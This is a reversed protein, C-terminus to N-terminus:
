LLDIPEVDVTVGGIEKRVQPWVERLLEQLAERSAARLLLHWRYRDKLRSLPCTSPGLVRVDFRKVVPKLLAAVAEIRSRAVAEELHGSVFRALSGFPPFGLEERGRIEEQYFGRFDHRSAAQISAHEPNFTQVVVEGPRDGRGARGSVQTLLQFAREAARFDPVNLAVDATVVGVLTVGPFDFGKTVMQTGVLIDIEGSHVQSVIRTHADKTATVDRDLRAVRAQPFLTRIMEEVRQTGIGFQRVRSGLCRECASPAKRLHGCHHCQLTGVRQRHLTLSVACSPCHPVHGCDRCLLFSSFGRRNLFLIVQEGRGLREGMAEELRRGFVTGPRLKTEERLDVIEVSPLPRQRVREPLELLACRGTQAAHFTELSPTASGLVLCGGSLRAYERAVERTHYRPSPSDQKYSGDHEEDLVILAPGKLPAYLASRPGVVVDAEGRRVREWEDFREGESLASHLIAVREGLRRRVAAAVQATLSIEPVLLLATRGAERAREIAHLYVETKGSGTVGFLLLAEGEGRRMAACVADAAAGQFPTLAPASDRGSGYGGPARRVNLRTAELLGKGILANVVQPDVKLRTCLEQQAIADGNRSRLFDLVEQQRKGLKASSDSQATLSSAVRVAKVSKAHVKPPLLQQEEKVWGEARARRLAQSLNPARVAAELGDRSLRGGADALAKHLAELTQRTLLGVRQPVSGDWEELSVVTQLEAGHREPVALPLAEALSCCYERAVWRLLEVLRTDFAPEPRPIAKLPRLRKGELGDPIEGISLIYGLQERGGLPVLVPMGVAAVARLSRPILYTLSEPLGAPSPLLVVQAVSAEESVGLPLRLDSPDSSDSM